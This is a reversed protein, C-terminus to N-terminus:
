QRRPSKKAFEAVQRQLQQELADTLNAEHESIGSAIRDSIVVRWSKTPEDRFAKAVLDPSVTRLKSGFRRVLTDTLYDFGLLEAGKAWVWNEVARNCVVKEHGKLVKLPPIVKTAAGADRLKRELFTILAPSTFANLEVRYCEWQKRGIFEGEFYQRETDTLVLGTPLAKRRIFKEAELGMALAEELKLGLDTVAVSYGPMRRTEETLTRAINYGYPDADHLVFLRYRGKRAKTFLCRVAETAYGEGAIIAMDFREGINATQFVPMLGKKEVYLIKDFEHEPFHYAEVERTGLYVTRGGHPEYLVGRPDFYLGELPGYEEKWDTLLTQSFYNFDLQKSTFPQILPRVAYYLTRASVPYQGQSTAQAWAEQLVAFVSDKVSMESSRELKEHDRDAKARSRRRREGERYAEKLVTWLVKSLARSLEDGVAITSKGRDRFTLAPSTLHLAFAYPFDDVHAHDLATMV